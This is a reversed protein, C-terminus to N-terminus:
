ANGQDEPPPPPEGSEIALVGPPPRGGQNEGPSKQRREFQAKGQLMLTQMIMQAIPAPFNGNPYEAWLKRCYRFTHGAKHCYVCHIPRRFPMRSGPPTQPRFSSSVPISSKPRIANVTSQIIAFQHDIADELEDNLRVAPDDEYEYEYLYSDDEPTPPFLALVDRKNKSTKQKSTKKRRTRTLCVDAEPEDSSDSEGPSKLGLIDVIAAVARQAPDDTEAKVAKVGPKRASVAHRSLELQEYQRCAQILDDMSCKERNVSANLHNQYATPHGLVFYKKISQELDYESSRPFANRCLYSIDDLFCQPTETNVNRIRKVLKLEYATEQGVASYRQRLCNWVEETTAAPRLSSVTKAAAGKICGLLRLKRQSDNWINGALQISSLFRDAFYEWTVTKDTGDFSLGSLAAIADQRRNKIEFSERVYSFNGGQNNNGSHSQYRYDQSNDRYQNGYGDGAVTTSEPLSSPWCRSINFHSEAERNGPVNSVPAATVHTVTAPAPSHRPIQPQYSPQNGIVNLCDEMWGPMAPVRERGQEAAPLPRSVTVTKSASKTAPTASAITVEQFCRAAYLQGAEVETLCHDSVAMNIM